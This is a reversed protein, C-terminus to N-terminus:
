VSFMTLPSFLTSIESIFARVHFKLLYLRRRLRSNKPFLKIHKDLECIKIQAKLFEFVVQAAIITLCNKFRVLLFFGKAIEM